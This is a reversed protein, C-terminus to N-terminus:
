AKRPQRVLLVSCTAHHLIFRSVSGIFFRSIESRGTDGVVILDIDHDSAFNTISGGIHLEELIFKNVASFQSQLRKVSVDLAVGVEEALQLDYPIDEPLLAPHQIVSVVSIETDAPLGMSLTKEVAENARNSGDHAIAVRLPRKEKKTDDAPRVILVPCPAHTAISESTSGLLIRSILSHGRAGLVILDAGSDKAYHLVADAAQGVREVHTATRGSKKLIAAAREFSKLANEHELKRFEEYIEASLFDNVHQGTVTVVQLEDERHLPMQSFWAIADQASNSGDSTLLVKM